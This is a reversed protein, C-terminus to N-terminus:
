KFDLVLRFGVRYVRFDPYYRLRAASRCYDPNSDWSGGRLVRSDGRPRDVWARGGAPAGEYSDHWDDEVWEWVNGHMDYLGFANPEKQGVPHTQSNSNKSYWGARSLDKETNGTYFRTTTGARCAYEWEAETALRAGLWRAYLYAEWWSVETVPHNSEGPCEHSPNFARYQEKTIPTSAIQFANVSVEHQPQEDSSETGGMLFSGPPIEIFQIDPFGSKPRRGCAKFFREGDVRAGVQELAYYIFALEEISRKKTVLRSLHTEITQAPLSWGRILRSLYDGDWLREWPYEGRNSISFLLSLCDDPSVGEVNLLARLAVKPSAKKIRELLELPQNLLGAALSLTEGWLGLEDAQLTKVLEIVFKTEKDEGVLQEASLLERLSRHLYRWPESPGDHPALIGANKSIDYLFGPNTEWTKKLQFDLDDRERRLKWLQEDVEKESWSEKGSRHLNLSLPRILRLASQQDRVGRQEVGHGRKLLLSVAQQYLAVRTPPLGDQKEYLAAILTLMLPNRAQDNLANQAAIENRAREGKEDGLWNCLLKKQGAENLPRVWAKSFDSGLEQFGVPRSMVAIVANPLDHSLEQIREVASSVANPEVEDLGDLLLWVRGPESCLRGVRDALGMGEKEGYRASLEEEAIEFPHKSKTALRALSLYLPVPGANETRSPDSLVWALHRALTTKGSGPEGLIAWRGPQNSDSSELLNRLSPFVRQRSREHSLRQEPGIFGGEDPEPLCTERSLEPREELELEVFVTELLRDGANSFFPVLNRHLYRLHKRWRTLVDKPEVAKRAPPPEKRDAALEHLFAVIDDHSDYAIVRVNFDRLYRDRDTDRADKLLVFHDRAAHWFFEKNKTLVRDLDFPDNMGYGVFLFTYDSILKEIAKKYQIDKELDDYERRTLVVSSITTSCGHVKFLIKRDMSLDSLADISNCWTYIARRDEAASFELMQDYNTTLLASVGLERIAQHLGGPSADRPRFVEALAERYHNRLATRIDDLFGLMAELSRANRIDEMRRDRENEDVLGREAGYKLLREGVEKWTPFGGRVDRGLSAGSGVLLALRGEQYAERLLNPIEPHKQQQTAM